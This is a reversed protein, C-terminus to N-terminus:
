LRNGLAAVKEHGGAITMPDRWESDCQMYASSVAGLGEKLLNEFKTIRAELQKIVLDKDKAIGRWMATETRARHLECELNGTM